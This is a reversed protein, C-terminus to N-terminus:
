QRAETQPSKRRSLLDDPTTVQHEGDLGICDCRTGLAEALMADDTVTECSVFVMVFIDAPFVQPTQVARLSRATAHGGVLGDVNVVKVTDTV